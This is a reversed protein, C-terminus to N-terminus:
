VCHRAVPARGFVAYQKAGARTIRVYSYKLFEEACISCRHVNVEPRPAAAAKRLRKAKAKGIKPKPESEHDVSPPRSLCPSEDDPRDTISPQSEESSTIKEVVVNRPSYDDGSEVVPASDYASASLPIQSESQTLRPSETSLDANTQSNSMNLDENPGNFNEQFQFDLGLSAGEKQLKRRLKQVLKLHKKSREHAELQKDSKFKKSCVVCEALELTSADSETLSSDSYSSPSVIWDPLNSTVINQRNTARARAAQAATVGRLSEQRQSDTQNNDPCRPDRRRVYRVLFRVTDNFDRIADDRLNKNEKELLRRVRRDPADSLRHKEAWTFSKRTSFQAWVAYFQKVHSNYDDTSSGFAPYQPCTIHSFKAAAKEELDLHDFTRSAIGFFGYADDSFSLAKIDFSRVLSIIDQTTTLRIGGFVPAVGSDDAVDNGSLIADRHSDYWAREHADSLVDYAAQVEAFNATATEINGFNRDPHLELAKKRYAKKIDDDTAQTDVGLLVYYCTKATSINSNSQQNSQNLGM